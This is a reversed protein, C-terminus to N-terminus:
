RVCRRGCSAPAPIGQPPSAAADALVAVVCLLAIVSLAVRVRAHKHSHDLTDVASLVAFLGVAGMLVVVALAQV